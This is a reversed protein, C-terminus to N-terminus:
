DLGLVLKIAKSKMVFNNCLILTISICGIWIFLVIVIPSTVGFVNCALIRIATMLYGNLLYLQLSYKSSQELLFKANEICLNSYYTKTVGCIIRFGWYIGNIVALGRIMHLGSLEETWTMNDLVVYIIISVLIFVGGRLFKVNYNSIEDEVPMNRHKFFERILNGFIFYPWYICLTDIMFMNSFTFIDKLFLLVVLLIIKSIANRFIKCILPYIVFVIFLVYIFWYNGGHFIFNCIGEGVGQTRNVASGGFAKFFITILGFVAYPVMLRKFKKAIYTGYSNCSYCFGALLFFLEMHWTYIFHELTSCWPVSLIDVPYKIFSHGLIMMIAAFGRMLDVYINRKTKNTEM